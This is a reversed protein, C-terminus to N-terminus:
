AYCNLDMVQGVKEERDGEAALTGKSQQTFEGKRYTSLFANLLPEIREVGRTKRESALGNGVTIFVGDGNRM